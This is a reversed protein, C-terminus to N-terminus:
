LGCEGARPDRNVACLGTVVAGTNPGTGCCVGSVSSRLFNFEFYQNAQTGNIRYDLLQVMAIAVLHYLTGSGTGEVTDYMTIPFVAGSRMLTDLAASVSTVHGTETQVISPVEVAGPYGLELWRKVDAAGANGSLDLWGWNSTANCGTFSNSFPVRIPGSEGVPGAPLNLWSALGPYNLCLTLPRVGNAGKPSGWRATTSSHVTRTDVGFAPAFFFDVPSEATVTVYGTSAASTGTVAHCTVMVADPDNSQLYRSADTPCGTGGRAYGLAAALAAADTGSHLRRKEQWAKGFDVALAAAAIAVVMFIAVLVLVAGREDSPAPRIRPTVRM